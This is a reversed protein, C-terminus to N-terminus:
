CGWETNERREEGSGYAHTESRAHEFLTPHPEPNAEEASRQTMPFPYHEQPQQMSPLPIKVVPVPVAIETGRKGKKSKKGGNPKGKALAPVDVPVPLDEKSPVPPLALPQTEPTPTPLSPDVWDDEIDDDFGDVEGDSEGNLTLSKEEGRKREPEGIGFRSGPGPTIPGVPDEETDVDESKAREDIEHQSAGSTSASGSRTDFFQEGDGGEQDDTDLDLDDPESMSELGM